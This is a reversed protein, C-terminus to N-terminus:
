KRPTPLAVLRAEFSANAIAGPRSARVHELADQGSLRKFRVLALAAVLGSRNRGQQCTVHVRGGAALHDAITAAAKLAVLWEADTIPPGSDDLPAHIVVLGQFESTPPQHEAACLVLTTFGRARIFEGAPPKAGMWLNPLLMYGYYAM